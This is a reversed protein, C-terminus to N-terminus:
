GQGVKQNIAKFVVHFPQAFNRHEQSLLRLLRSNLERWFLTAVEKERPLCFVQGREAAKLQGPTHHEGGFVHQFAPAGTGLCHDITGALCDRFDELMRTTAHRIDGLRRAEEPLGLLIHSLHLVSAILCACQPYWGVSWGLFFPCSQECLPRSLSTM